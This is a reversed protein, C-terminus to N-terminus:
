NHKKNKISSFIVYIIILVVTMIIAFMFEGTLCKIFYQFSNDGTILNKGYLLLMFILRDLVLGVLTSLGMAVFNITSSRILNYFLLYITHSVIFAIVTGFFAGLIPYYITVNGINLMNSAFISQITSNYVLTTYSAKPILGLIIILIFLIFMASSVYIHKRAEKKNYKNAIFTTVLFSFPYIITGGTIIMNKIPEYNKHIFIYDAILIITLLTILCGDSKLSSSETNKPKINNASFNVQRKPENTKPLLIEKNNDVTKPLTAYLYDNKNQM